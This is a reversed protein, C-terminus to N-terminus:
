LKVRERLMRRARHLRSELTGIPIGLTNAAEKEPLKKGKELIPLLTVRVVDKYDDPLREIEALVRTMDMPPIEEQAAQEEIAEMSVTSIRRERRYHDKMRWVALSLFYNLPNHINKGRRDIGAYEELEKVIIDIGSDVLREQIIMRRELRGAIRAVYPRM